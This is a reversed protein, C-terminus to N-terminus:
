RRDACSAAYRVIGMDSPGGIAHMGIKEAVRRSAANGARIDAVIRPLALRDLGHALVARAAETAFGRGRADTMLRWGIEVEPGTADEPIPLVWGLFADPRAKQAVVWYGQGPPYPALTRARIFARHAPENEWSGAAQPLDAWDLTGPERDMRFCDELDRLTRSRLRLRATELTPIGTVGDRTPSGGV